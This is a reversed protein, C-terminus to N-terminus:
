TLGSSLQASFRIVRSSVYLHFARGEAQGAPHLQLPLPEAPVSLDLVAGGGGMGRCRGQCLVVM